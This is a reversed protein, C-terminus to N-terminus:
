LQNLTIIFDGDPTVFISKVTRSWFAKKSQPALKQYTEEFNDFYDMNIPKKNKM